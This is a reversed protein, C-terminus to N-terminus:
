LREISFSSLKRPSLVTGLQGVRTSFVGVEDGSEFSVIQSLNISCNNPPAYIQGNLTFNVERLYGSLSPAGLRVWSGGVPKKALQLAVNFYNTGTSIAHMICTVKHIGKELVKFGTSLVEYPASASIQYEFEHGATSHTSWSNFLQWESDATPIGNVVAPSATTSHNIDIGAVYSETFCLTQAYAPTSDTSEAVSTQFPTPM